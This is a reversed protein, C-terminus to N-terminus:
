QAESYGRKVAAAQMDTWFDSSFAMREAALTMSGCGDMAAIMTDSPTMSAVEAELAPDMMDVYDFDPDNEVRALLTDSATSHEALEGLAGQEAMTDYLCEFAAREAETVPTDADFVEAYAPDFRRMLEASMELSQVFRDEYEALFASKSLNALREAEDAALPTACLGIACLGLVLSPRTM